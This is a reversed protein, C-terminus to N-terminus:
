ISRNSNLYLKVFRENPTMRAFGCDDFVIQVAKEIDLGHYTPYVSRLYNPKVSKYIEKSSAGSLFSAYRYFYGIWHMEEASFVTGGERKIMHKVIDSFVDDDSQFGFLYQLSDMSEAFESKMFASIFHYSPVLQQVSKEFIRAQSSALKYADENKERLFKM